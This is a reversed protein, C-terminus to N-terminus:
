CPCCVSSNESRNVSCNTRSFRIESAHHFVNGDHVSVIRMFAKELLFADGPNVPGLLILPEALSGEPPHDLRRMTLSTGSKAAHTTLASLFKLYFPDEPKIEPSCLVHIASPLPNPLVYTGMGQRRDLLGEDMLAQLAKRISVRSIGLSEALARESPVRIPRDSRMALFTERLTGETRESILPSHHM